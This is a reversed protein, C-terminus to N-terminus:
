LNLRMYIKKMMWVPIVALILIFFFAPHFTKYPSYDIKTINDVFATIESYPSGVTINLYSTSFNATNIVLSNNINSFLLRNGDWINASYITVFRVGKRTTSVHGIKNYHTISYNQYTYRVSYADNKSLSVIAKPRYSNNYFVVSANYKKDFIPYRLPSLERDTFNYAESDSGCTFSGDEDQCIYHWKLTASLTAVTINEDQEVSINTNISDYRIGTGSAEGLTLFSNNVPDWLGAEGQVIAYDSANGPVYDTGNERVMQQFGVIDVWGSLRGKSSQINKDPYYPGTNLVPTNTFNAIADGFPTAAAHLMSILLFSFFLPLKM